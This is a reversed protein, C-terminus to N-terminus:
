FPQNMYDVYEETTLQDLRKGKYLAQSGEPNMAAEMQDEMSGTNTRRYHDLKKDLRSRNVQSAHNLLIVQPLTIKLCDQM